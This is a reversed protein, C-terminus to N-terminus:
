GSAPHAPVGGFGGSISFTSPHTVTTMGNVTSYVAPAAGPYNLTIKTYSFSGGQSLLASGTLTVNV